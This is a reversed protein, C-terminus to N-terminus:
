LKFWFEPLILQELAPFKDKLKQLHVDIAQCLSVYHQAQKSMAFEIMANSTDKMVSDIDTYHHFAALPEKLNGIFRWTTGIRLQLMKMQLQERTLLLEEYLVKAQDVTHPMFWQWLFSPKSSQLRKFAEDEKRQFFQVFEAIELLKSKESPGGTQEFQKNNVPVGSKSQEMELQQRQTVFRHL